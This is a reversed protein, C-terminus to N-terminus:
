ANVGEKQSTQSQIDFLTEVRALRRGAEESIPGHVEIMRRLGTLVQRRQEQSRPLLRPIAAVAREEDLRLILFQEKLLQKLQAM